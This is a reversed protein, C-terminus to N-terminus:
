FRVNALRRIIDQRETQAQVRQNASLQKFTALEKQAEATRKLRMYVRGLQYHAEALKPEAATVQELQAAAETFRETRTYLKALALRAAAFSPELEIARVLHKEARAYDTTTQKLLADAALYHAGALRDDIALSREYLAIAEAFRGQQDYVIGLYAHAPAFRPDCEIARTFSKAAEESKDLATQAVGLAFWLRASRPFEVLAEQLRIIAAAPAKTDTLLTGYRFRYAESKPDREIALRMAPIANEIHGSKEYVEALLAYIPAADVGRAVAAELTRGAAVVDRQKLATQALLVIAQVNAPDVAVAAGLEQNAESLLGANLLAAGLELSSASSTPASDRASSKQRIYDRFYTAAAAKDDLRLAIIVLARAIETDPAISHARAFLGRAVRLGETTNSAFQIQALNVLAGPQKPDIRLSTEFQAAAQEIRNLKLLIAGYNNRAPASMPAIKVAAAFHEEAEALKDARAAMIGLYTHATENHPDVKLAQEFATQAAGTDGRELAAAGDNILQIAPSSTKSNQVTSASLASAEQMMSLIIVAIAVV